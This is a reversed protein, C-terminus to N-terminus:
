LLSANRCDITYASGDLRYYISYERDFPGLGKGFIIPQNPDSVVANGITTTLKKSEATKAEGQMIYFHDIHDIVTVKKKEIDGVQKGNMLHTINCGNYETAGVSIPKTSSCGSYFQMSIILFTIKFIFHKKKIFTM